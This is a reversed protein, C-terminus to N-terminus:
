APSSASRRPWRSTGIQPHARIQPPLSRHFCTWGWTGRSVGCADREKLITELDAVQNVLQKPAAANAAVDEAAVASPVLRSARAPALQHPAPLGSAPRAGASEEQLVGCHTAIFPPVARRGGAM